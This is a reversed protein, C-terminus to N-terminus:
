AERLLDSFKRRLSQLDEWGKEGRKAFKKALNKCQSPSFLKEGFCELMMSLEREPVEMIERQEWLKMEPDVQFSVKVGVEFPTNAFLRMKLEGTRSGKGGQLMSVTSPDMWQSWAEFPNVKVGVLVPAVEMILSLLRDSGEGLPRSLLSDWNEYQAKIKITM